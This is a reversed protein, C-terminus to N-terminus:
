VEEQMKRLLTQQSTTLHEPFHIQYSVFLDGTHGEEKYIPFGKGKLRVQSNPQVVPKVKLNVQGNLTPVLVEGGLM